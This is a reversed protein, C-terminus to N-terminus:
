NGAPSYYTHFSNKVRYQGIARMDHVRDEWDINDVVYVFKMGSKVFEVARDLFHKGVDDLVVYKNSFSLCLGFKNFRDILMLEEDPWTM